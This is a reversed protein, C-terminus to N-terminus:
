SKEKIEEKNRENFIRRVVVRRGGLTPLASQFSVTRTHTHASTHIDRERVSTVTRVNGVAHSCKSWRLDSCDPVSESFTKACVCIERSRLRINREMLGRGSDRM